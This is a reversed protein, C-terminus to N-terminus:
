LEADAYFQTPTNLTSLWIGQGGTLGSAVNADWRCAYTSSNTLNLTTCNFNNGNTRLRFDTGAGQWRGVTPNVRKEVQFQWPGYAATSSYVAGPSGLIEMNEANVEFYRRCRQLEDGYSRHEFGTATDGAEFQLGTMEWTASATNNWSHDQDKIYDTASSAAWVGDTHGSTTYDSGYSQVFVIRLQKGTNDTISVISAGPISKEVKTWTNAALTYSFSIRNTFSTDDLFFAYTGAVSSKVWFSVTAYSSSSNFDWGMRNIEIGEFRYETQVYHATATSTATNTVKVANRFGLTYPTTGSSVSSQQISSTTGSGYIQSHRDPGFAGNATGTTNRQDVNCAGNIILNRNGYQTVNLGAEDIRSVAM